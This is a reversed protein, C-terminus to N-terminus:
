PKPPNEPTPNTAPSAGIIAPKKVEAAAPAPKDPVAPKPTDILAGNLADFDPKSLLFTGTKGEITGHWMEDANPGGIIVRGTKKDALTFRIVLNPKDLGQEAAVTAGAWRVAQLNALTNVLSEMANQNLAGDGKALKWNKDKDREFGFTPQGTRTIELGAIDDRKVDQLKLEQWQLPDTWIGDMISAPVAVIFPEDDLKAYGADGEFKGLMLKALPHEGPKTEPTGETSYSSLTVTAQPVDLGYQKLDNAMDAVFRATKMSTLESLLKNAAGGNVPAENQKEGKRVWEEGKRGLVIKERGPSEITIRDVIDPQVRMLNQDRLDNPATEILSEIAIPVTFVGDRSSLKVYVHTPTPPPAAEKKDDKKEEPKDVPKANGIQLVVPEKVGEAHFTVTARPENLGFTGLDKTDSLFDEIRLTTASSVLDTLKQDDARGKFPRVLSWHNAKKEAEVEGKATKVVLRSIQTATLDSLKRDRWEKLGKSAQDRLDKGAVYAADKGEVRMYVKGEIATDKGILLEFPNKGGGKISVDGKAIGFEKLAESGGKGEPVRDMRLSELSTFLSSIALTDAKDKVPADIMWTGDPAKKLEITGESNRITVSDLAGRDVDVVRGKKERLEDTSLKQSDYFKIYSFLGLGLILLILTNRLKM